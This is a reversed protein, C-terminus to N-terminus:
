SEKELVLKAKRKIRMIANDIQKRGYGLRETIEDYTLGYLWYPLVAKEMESLKPLIKALLEKAEDRSQISELFDGSDTLISSQTCSEDGEVPADLELATNLTKYIHYGTQKILSFIECKATTFYFSTFQVGKEPKFYKVSKEIFMLLHQYIDEDDMGKVNFKYAHYKAISQITRDETLENLAQKSTKARIALQNIREKETM